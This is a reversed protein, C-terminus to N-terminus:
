QKDFFDKMTTEKHKRTIEIMFSEIDLVNQQVSDSNLLTYSYSQLTELVAM